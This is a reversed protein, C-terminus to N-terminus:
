AVPALAIANARRRADAIVEILKKAKDEATKLTMERMVAPDREDDEPDVTKSWSVACHLENSVELALSQAASTVRRLTDLDKM